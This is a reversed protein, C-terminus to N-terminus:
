RFVVVSNTGTDRTGGDYSWITIDVRSTSRTGLDSRYENGFLAYSTSSSSEDRPTVSTAYNADPMSSSFNVGFRGVAIDTITNVNFDARISVTGQANFNVWSRVVATGSTGQAGPAGQRGQAGQAGQAGPSGPSGQRGQNGQAGPSGQAGPAGQTGQAGVAGQTGQAGVDGQAGPAGQTGQAGVAGQYGQYGQAGQAGPDGVRTWQTGNWKFTVSNATYTDNLAPSAPFNFAAM